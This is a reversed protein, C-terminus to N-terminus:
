IMSVSIGRILPTLASSKASKAADWLDDDDGLDPDELSQPSMPRIDTLIATMANDITLNSPWECVIVQEDNEVMLPSAPPTLLPIPTNERSQEYCEDLEEELRRDLEEEDSSICSNERERYAASSTTLLTREAFVDAQKTQELAPAGLSFDLLDHQALSQQSQADCKTRKLCEESHGADINLTTLTSYSLVRKAKPLCVAALSERDETVGIRRDLWTADDFTDSDHSPSHPDSFCDLIGVLEDDNDEDDDGDIHLAPASDSSASPDLIPDIPDIDENQSNEYGDIANDETHDLEDEGAVLSGQDTEDKVV